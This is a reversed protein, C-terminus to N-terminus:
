DSYTCSRKGLWWDSREGGGRRSRELIVVVDAAAAERSGRGSCGAEMGPLWCGATLGIGDGRGNAVTMATIDGVSMATPAISINANTPIGALEISTGWDM